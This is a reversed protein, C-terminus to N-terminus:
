PDREREYENAKRSQCIINWILSVSSRKVIAGSSIGRKKKKLVASLRLIYCNWHWIMTFVLASVTFKTLWSHFLWSDSPFCPSKSPSSMLVRLIACDCAEMECRVRWGVRHSVIILVHEDNKSRENDLMLVSQIWLTAIKTHLSRSFPVLLASNQKWAELYETPSLRDPQGM